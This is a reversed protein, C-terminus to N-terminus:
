LMQTVFDFVSCKNSEQQRWKLDNQTVEDIIPRHKKPFMCPAMEIKTSSTRHVSCLSSSLRTRVTGCDTCAGLKFHEYTRCQYAVMQFQSDHHRYLNHVRSHSFPADWPLCGAQQQPLEPSAVGEVLWVDRHGLSHAIGLASANTHIAEVYNADWLTLRNDEGPTTFCPGAPDLATIHGVREGLLRQVHEGTSSMVHSGLSHGILHMDRLRAGTVRHYRSIFQSFYKDVMNTSGSAMLYGSLLGNKRNRLQQALQVCVCQLHDKDVRPQIDELSLLNALRGDWCREEAGRLKILKYFDVTAETCVTCYADRSVNSMYAISMTSQGATHSSRSYVRARSFQEPPGQYTLLGSYLTTGNLRHLQVRYAYLVQSGFLYAKSRHIDIEVNSQVLIQYHQLCYHGQHKKQSGDSTKVFYRARDVQAGGNDPVEKAQLEQTLPVISQDHRVATDYEDLGIAAPMPVLTCRSEDTQCDPCSGRKFDEYSNCQYAVMQCQHDRHQYVQYARAHSCTVEWLSCGPQQQPAEGIGVWIDRHGVAASTGFVDANTHIAEVYHADYMNVRNREKGTTYCPGAADLATIRGVRDGLVSSVYKGAFGMVHAGLSHGILHFNTLRTGINQQYRVIFNGMYSGVTRTTSAVLSYGQIIGQSNPVFKNPWSLVFVNYTTKPSQGLTKIIDGIWCNSSGNFAHTIFKAPENANIGQELLEDNSYGLEFVHLPGQYRPARAGIRIYYIQPNIDTLPVQYEDNGWCNKTDDQFNIQRKSNSAGNNRSWSGRRHFPFLSQVQCCDTLVLKCKKCKVECCYVFKCECDEEIEHQETQYGRGCCLLSCSDLGHSTSNCHRNRTGLVGLQRNEVCYDPSEQIFVLDKRNPKRVGRKVPRLKSRSNRELAAGGNTAANTNSNTDANANANASQSMASRNALQVQTAREYRAILEDGITRFPALTKWCLKTACTPDFLPSSHCKCMLDMSAKLVRRGVDYNHVSIMSVPDLQNETSDTFERSLQVGYGVDDSCAAQSDWKTQGNNNGNTTTTVTNEFSQQQMLQSQQSQSQQHQPQPGAHRVSHTRARRRTSCGCEDGLEGRNCAKTVAYAIGAAGIANLFSHERNPQTMVPGFVPTTATLVALQRARRVEHGFSMSRTMMTTSSYGNNNNTNTNHVNGNGNAITIQNTGLQIDDWNNLPDVNISCNWRSAAFQYQCEEIAMRIGKAVISMMKPHSACLTRQRANVLLKSTQCFHKYNDKNVKTAGLYGSSIGSM